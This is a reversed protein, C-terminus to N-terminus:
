FNMIAIRLGRNLQSRYVNLQIRSAFAFSFSTNTLLSASSPNTDVNSPELGHNIIDGM